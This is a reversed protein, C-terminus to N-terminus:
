GQSGAPPTTAPPTASTAPPTAPKPTPKPVEHEQTGPKQQASKGDNDEYVSVQAKPRELKVLLEKTDGTLDFQASYTAFGRAIVQLTVHSGVELVDIAARGDPDTKVELNGDDHGDRTAHFVVAANPLPKANFGKQVTIVVHATPPLPKYKRGHQPDQASVTAAILVTSAVALAFRRFVPVSLM